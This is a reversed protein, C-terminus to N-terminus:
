ASITSLMISYSYLYDKKKKKFVLFMKTQRFVCTESLLFGQVSIKTLPSLLSLLHSTFVSKAPGTSGSAFSPNLCVRATQAIELFYFSYSGSFLENSVHSRMSCNLTGPRIIAPVTWYSHWLVNSKLGKSVGDFHSPQSFNSSVTQFSLKGVQPCDVLSTTSM